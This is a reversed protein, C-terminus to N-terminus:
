ENSDSWEKTLLMTEMASDGIFYFPSKYQMVDVLISNLEVSSLHERHILVLTGDLSKRNTGLDIGLANFDETRGVIMTLVERM